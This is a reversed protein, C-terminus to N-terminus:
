ASLGGISVRFDLTLVDPVARHMSAEIKLLEGIVDGLTSLRTEMSDVGAQALECLNGVEAKM